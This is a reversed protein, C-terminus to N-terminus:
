PSTTAPAPASLRMSDAVLWVGGAIFFNLSFEAWNFHKEPHALLVPVWVLLGFLVIMLGELQAALRAKVGALLAIAALGFAITTVVVWFMPSPPIWLPVLSATYQAYAVQAAAFSLTCVGLGARSWRGFIAATAGFVLSLFEFFGTYPGYSLPAAVIAPICALTFILAVIALLISANRRMSPFQLALGGAILAIAILDGAIAPLKVLPLDEWAGPDHWVLLVVGFM